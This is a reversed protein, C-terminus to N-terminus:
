LRSITQILNLCDVVDVVLRAFSIRNTQCVTQRVSQRVTMSLGNDFIDDVRLNTQWTQQHSARTRSM